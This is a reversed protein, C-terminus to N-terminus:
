QPTESIKDNVIKCWKEGIQLEGNLTLNDHETNYLELLAEKKNQDRFTFGLDLKDVVNYHSGKNSVTRGSNIIRCKQIESLNIHEASIQDKTKRVYIVSLAVDDIGIASNNWLDYRSINCNNRQAIESLQRLFKKERRKRNISMWAFPLICILVIILGIITIESEM